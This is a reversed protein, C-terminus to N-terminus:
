IIPDEEDVGHVLRCCYIGVVYVFRDCKCAKTLEDRLNTAIRVIGIRLNLSNMIFRESVQNRVSGNVPHEVVHGLLWVIIVGWCIVKEGWKTDTGEFDFIFM